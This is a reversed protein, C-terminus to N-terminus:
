KPIVWLKLPMEIGKIHIEYLGLCKIEPFQIDESKVVLCFVKRIESIIEKISIPIIMGEDNSEKEIIFSEFYAM